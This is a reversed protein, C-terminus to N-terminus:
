RGRPSAPESFSFEYKRDFEKFYRVEFSRANLDMVSIWLSRSSRPGTVRMAKMVELMGTTDSVGRELLPKAKLYRPCTKAPFGLSAWACPRTQRGANGL